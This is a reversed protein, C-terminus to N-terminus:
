LTLLWGFFGLFSYGVALMVHLLLRDVIPSLESEALSEHLATQPNM